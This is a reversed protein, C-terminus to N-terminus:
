ERHDIDDGVIEVWRHKRHEYVSYAPAPLDPVDFCGIAVAVLDSDAPARYYLTTGCDPCFFFDAATGSDGFRRVRRAEGVIMVAAEPFRAQAAFASGSRRQCERCHCVSVRVPEGTALLSLRGCSCAARRETM